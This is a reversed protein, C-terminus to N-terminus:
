DGLRRRDAASKIKSTVFLLLLMVIVFAVSYFLVVVVGFKAALLAFVAILVVFVLSIMINKHKKAKEAQKIEEDTLIEGEAFSYGCECKKANPANIIHCKPCNKYENAM